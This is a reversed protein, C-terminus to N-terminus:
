SLYANKPRLNQPGRRSQARPGGARLAPDARGPLDVGPPPLGRFIGRAGSPRCTKDLPLEARIGPNVGWASCIGGQPRPRDRRATKRSRRGQLDRPRPARSRDPDSPPAGCDRRTPRPDARCRRAALRDPPRRGPLEPAPDGGDAAAPLRRAGPGAAGRSPARCREAPRRGRDWRFRRAPAPRAGRGSRVRAPPARGGSAGSLRSRRADGGGRARAGSRHSGGRGPSPGAGGPRERDGRLLDGGAPV